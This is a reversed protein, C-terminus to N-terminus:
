HESEDEQVLWEQVLDFVEGRDLEPQEDAILQEIETLVCDQCVGGIRNRHQKCRQRARRVLEEPSIM